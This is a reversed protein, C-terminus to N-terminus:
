KPPLDRELEKLFKLYEEITFDWNVFVDTNDRVYEVADSRDIKKFVRFVEKVVKLIEEEFGSMENFRNIHKM